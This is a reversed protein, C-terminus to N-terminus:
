KRARPRWTQLLSKSSRSWHKSSSRMLAKAAFCVTMRRLGKNINRYGATRVVESRKLGREKLTELILRGIAYRPLM